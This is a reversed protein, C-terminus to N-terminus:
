KFSEHKRWQGNVTQRWIKVPHLWPPFSIKPFIKHVKSIFNLSINSVVSTTKESDRFLFFVSFLIYGHFAYLLVTFCPHVAGKGVGM